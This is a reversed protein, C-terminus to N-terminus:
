SSLKAVTANVVKTIREFNEAYKAKLDADANLKAQIEAEAKAIRMTSNAICVATFNDRNVASNVAQEYQKDAVYTDLMSISRAITNITGTVSNAATDVTSLMSSLTQTINAM